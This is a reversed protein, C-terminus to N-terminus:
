TPSTKRLSAPQLGRMNLAEAQHQRRVGFPTTPELGNTRPIPLTRVHAPIYLVVEPIPLLPRYFLEAGRLLCLDQIHRCLGKWSGLLVRPIFFLGRTDWPTEV